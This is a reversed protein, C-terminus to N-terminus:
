LNVVKFYGSLEGLVYVLVDGSATWTRGTDDTWPSATADTVTVPIRAKKLDHIIEYAM